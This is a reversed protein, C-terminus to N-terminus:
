DFCDVAPRPPPDLSITEPNLGILVLYGSHRGIGEASFDFGYVRLIRLGTGMRRMGMGLHRLSVSQDLFQLDHQRCAARCIATAM